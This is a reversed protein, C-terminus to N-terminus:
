LIGKMIIKIANYTEKFFHSTAQKSTDLARVLAPKPKGAKPSLKLKGKKDEYKLKYKSLKSEKTM